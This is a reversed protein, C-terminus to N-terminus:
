KAPIGRNLNLHDPSTSIFMVRLSNKFNAPPAAIANGRFESAIADQL